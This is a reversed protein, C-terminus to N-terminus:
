LLAEHLEGPLRIVTQPRGSAPPSKHAHLQGPHLFQVTLWGLENAAVFDKAPNDAVYACCENPVGLLERVAQYGAPSPKWAGRGMQETFIVADFFNEIKLADLKLRQAPLFGDSLLGLRYRGHLAALVEVMGGYPRIQPRHGRYVEVMEAIQEDTLNLDFQESLANFANEATGTLFRQWLWDAFQTGEGRGLRGGLRRGVARYGSRVYDREPYLTDDLDFVV